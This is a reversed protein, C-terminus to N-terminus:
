RDRRGRGAPVLDLLQGANRVSWTKAGFTGNSNPSYAVADVWTRLNYANVVRMVQGVEDQTLTQGDVVQNLLPVLVDLDQQDVDIQPREPTPETVKDPTKQPEVLVPLNLTWGEPILPQVIPVISILFGKYHDDRDHMRAKEVTKHPIAVWLPWSRTGGNQLPQVVQLDFWNLKQSQNVEEWYKKATKPDTGSQEALQSLTYGGQTQVLTKSTDLLKQVTQQTRTQATTTRQRDKM